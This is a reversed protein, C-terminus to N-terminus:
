PYDQFTDSPISHNDKGKKQDSHNWLDYGQSVNPDDVAANEAKQIANRRLAEARQQTAHQYKKTAVQRTEALKQSEILRKTSKSAPNKPRRSRCYM